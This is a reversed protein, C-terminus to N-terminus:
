HLINYIQEVFVHLLFPLLDIRSVLLIQLNLTCKCLSQLDLLIHYFMFCLDCNLTVPGVTSWCVQLQFFFTSTVFTQPQSFGDTNSPSAPQKQTCVLCTENIMMSSSHYLGLRRSETSPPTHNYTATSSLNDSTELVREGIIAIMLQVPRPAVSMSIPLNNTQNTYLSM